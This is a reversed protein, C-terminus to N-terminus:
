AVGLAHGHNETLGDGRRLPDAVEGRVCVWRGGLGLGGEEVVM